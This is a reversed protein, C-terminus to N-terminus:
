QELALEILRAILEEFPLGSAAWLKPYMSIPTFGPITNVENVWVQQGDRSVFFDVRAMGSCDIARFAEIALQRVRETSAESLEAPIILQSGEELYKAKYDYFDHCPVIEGLVSAQPSDNGLVACEVERCDIAAQEIVVKRDYRTAEEFAADLQSPDLVKSIGVSSGMNAPKVFCPYGLAQKTEEVVTSRQHRWQRATFARYALQPLEAAHFVAKMLVKDMGVASAAVGAGVYPLLALELLGQVCGDEGRPGHLVPFVVDVSSPTPPGGGKPLHVLGGSAPPALVAAGSKPEDPLARYGHAADLLDMIEQGGSLWHGQKTIAVPLVEYREPQRRLADIVARASTLSVEHEASQGGFLVAVRLPRKTTAM